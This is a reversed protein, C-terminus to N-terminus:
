KKTKGGKIGQILSDRLEKGKHTLFANKSIRNAKDEQTYLVEYGAEYQGGVYRHDALTNVQRSTKLNNWEMQEALEVLPREEKLAVLLFVIIQEVTAKPSLEKQIAKMCDLLKTLESHAM